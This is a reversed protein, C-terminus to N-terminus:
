VMASPIGASPITAATSPTILVIAEMESGGSTRPLIIPPASTPVNRPTQSAYPNTAGIAPAIPLGGTVGASELALALVQAVVVALAVYAPWRMWRGWLPRSLVILFVYWAAGRLLDLAVALAGSFPWAGRAELASLGAWLGSIAVAVAQWPTGLVLQTGLVLESLAIM